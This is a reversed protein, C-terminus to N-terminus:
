LAFDGAVLNKLGALEIQFEPTFDGSVNGEIITRNNAIDQYWRIQGVSAGNSTLFSFAPDGPDSGDADIPSLDVTDGSTFDTIRDRAGTGIGSDSVNSFVFRDGSGAGTLVDAGAGGEIIDVGAAGIVRNALNNGTLAVGTNVNGPLWGV